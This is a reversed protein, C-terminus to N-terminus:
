SLGLPAHEDDVDAAAMYFGPYRAPALHTLKFGAGGHRRALHNRAYEPQGAIQFIVCYRDSVRAHHHVALDHGFWVIQCATPHTKVKAFREASRGHEQIIGGHLCDTTVLASAHEKQTQAGAQSGGENDVTRDSGHLQGVQGVLAAAAILFIQAVSSPATEAGFLPTPYYSIHDGLQTIGQFRVVDDDAAAISAFQLFQRSVRPKSVVVKRKEPSESNPTGSRMAGLLRRPNRAVCNLDWDRFICSWRAPVRM